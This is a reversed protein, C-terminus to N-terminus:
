PAGKYAPFPRGSCCLLGKPIHQLGTIHCTWTKGNLVASHLFGLVANESQSLPGTRKALAKTCCFGARRGREKVM